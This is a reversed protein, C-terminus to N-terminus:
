FPILNCGLTLVSAMAEKAMGGKCEWKAPIKKWAANAVLRGLLPCALMAIPGTPAPKQCTKESDLFAMLDAEIAAPNGCDGAKAMAAAAGKSITEALPCSVVKCSTLVVLSLVLLLKKM